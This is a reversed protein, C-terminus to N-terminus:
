CMSPLPHPPPLDRESIMSAQAACEPSEYDYLFDFDGAVGSNMHTLLILVCLYSYACRLIYYYSSM